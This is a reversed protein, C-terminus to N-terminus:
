YKFDQCGEFLAGIEYLKRGSGFEFNCNFYNEVGFLSSQCLFVHMDNSFWDFRFHKDLWFFNKYVGISYMIVLWSVLIILKM